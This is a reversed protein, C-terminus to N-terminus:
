VSHTPQESIIQKQHIEKVDEESGETDKQEEQSQNRKLKGDSLLKTQVTM